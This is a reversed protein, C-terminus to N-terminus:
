NNVPEKNLVDLLDLQEEIQQNQLNDQTEVTAVEAETNLLVEQVSLNGNEEQINVNIKSHTLIDVKTNDTDTDEIGNDITEEQAHNNTEQLEKLYYSTFWHLKEHSFM